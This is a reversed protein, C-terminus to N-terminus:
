APTYKLPAQYGRESTQTAAIAAYVLGRHNEYDGTLQGPLKDYTLLGADLRATFSDSFTQTLVVHAVSRARNALTNINKPLNHAATTEDDFDVPYTMWKGLAELAAPKDVTPDPDNEIATALSTLMYRLSLPEGEAQESVEQVTKSYFCTMWHEVDAVSRCAHPGIEIIARAVDAPTSPKANPSGGYEAMPVLSEQVLRQTEAPTRDSDTALTNYVSAM